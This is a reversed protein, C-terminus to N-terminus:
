AVQVMLNSGFRDGYDKKELQSISQQLLSSWTAVRQDDSIYPAAEMLTAYLYADPANTILWNVGSSLADFSRYYTLTYTEGGGTPLFYINDGVISYQSAIGQEATINAPETYTLPWTVGGSTVTLSRMELFGAPLSVTAAVTGTDTNEMARLRLVRNLKAEALTIFDPIIATLDGRHLWNAVSTQLDSYNAIAM